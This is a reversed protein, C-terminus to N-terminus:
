ILSLVTALPNSKVLTDSLTRCFELAFNGGGVDYEVRTVWASCKQIRRSTTVSPQVYNIGPFTQIGLLDTSSDRELFLRIPRRPGIFSFFGTNGVVFAGTALVLLILPAFGWIPSKSWSPAKHALDPALKFATDAALIMATVWLCLYAIRDWFSWGRM